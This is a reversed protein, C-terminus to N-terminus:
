VTKFLHLSTRLNLYEKHEKCYESGEVVPKGCFHCRKKANFGLEISSQTSNGVVSKIISFANNLKDVEVPTLVETDIPIVMGKLRWLIRNRKQWRLQKETM